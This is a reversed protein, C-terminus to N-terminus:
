CKLLLLWFNLQLVFFWFTWKKKREERIMRAQEVAIESRASSADDVVSRIYSFASTSIFMMMVDSADHFLRLCGCCPSFNKEEGSKPRQEVCCKRESSARNGLSCSFFTKLPSLWFTTVRNESLLVELSINWDVNEFNFYKIIFRQFITRLVQAVFSIVGVKKVSDGVVVLKKANRSETISFRM